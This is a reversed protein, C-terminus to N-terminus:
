SLILYACTWNVDLNYIALEGRVGKAVFIPISIPFYFYIFRWEIGMESMM